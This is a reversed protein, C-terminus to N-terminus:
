ELSAAARRALPFEASDYLRRMEIFDLREEGVEVFAGQRLQSPFEETAFRLPEMASDCRPYQMFRRGCKRNQVPFLEAVAEYDVPKTAAVSDCWAM